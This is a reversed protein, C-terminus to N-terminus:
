GDGRVEYVSQVGYWDPNLDNLNTTEVLRLGLDLAPHHKMELYPKKKPHPIRPLGLPKRLRNLWRTWKLGQRQTRRRKMTPFRKIYDWFPIERDGERIIIVYDYPKPFRKRRVWVDIRAIGDPRLVRSIEELLRIKDPVMFVSAQSYVLDFYGTEHRLGEGADYFAVAPPTVARSEEDSFLGMRVATRRIRRWNGHHEYRNIGHLEVQDGYLKRLDMLAAGFGCGVELIRVPRGQGLRADILPRLDGIRRRVEILGRTRSPKKRRVLRRTEAPAFWRSILTLFPLTPRDDGLRNPELPRSHM